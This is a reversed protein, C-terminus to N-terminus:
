SFPQSKISALAEVKKKLHKEWQSLIMRKSEFQYKM